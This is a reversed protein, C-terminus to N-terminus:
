DYFDGFLYVQVSYFQLPHQLFDEFALLTKKLRADWFLMEQRYVSQRTSWQFMCMIMMMMIMMMM